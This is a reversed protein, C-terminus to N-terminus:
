GADLTMDDYKISAEGFLHFKKNKVDMVTSDTATATVVATLADPSITIGKNAQTATDIGPRDTISKLSDKKYTTDVKAETM